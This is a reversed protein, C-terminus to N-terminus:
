VGCPAATRRGADRPARSPPRDRRPCGRRRRRRDIEERVLALEDGPSDEVAVAADAHPQVGPIRGLRQVVGKPAAADGGGEAQPLVDAVVIGLSRRSQDEALAVAQAAQDDIAVPRVQRNLDGGQRHGHPQLLDDGMSTSNVPAASRRAASAFPADAPGFPEIEAVPRVPSGRGVPGDEDALVAQLEGDIQGLSLLRPQVEILPLVAQRRGAIKAAAAHQVHEAVAAAEAEGRGHAACRSAPRRNWRWPRRGPRPWRGACRREGVRPELDAVAELGQLREQGRALSEVRDHEIRGLEGAAAARTSSARRAYWQSFRSATSNSSGPPIRTVHLQEPCTARSSKRM